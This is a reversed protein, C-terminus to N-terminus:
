LQVGSLFYGLQHIIKSVQYEINEEEKIFITMSWESDTLSEKETIYHLSEIVLNKIYFTLAYDIYHTLEQLLQPQFVGTTYLQQQIIPQILNNLIHTLKVCQNASLKKINAQLQATKYPQNKIINNNLEFKSKFHQHHDNFWGMVIQYVDPEETILQFDSFLCPRLNVHNKIELKVKYTADTFFVPIGQEAVNLLAYTNQKIIGIIVIRKIQSLPFRQISNLKIKVLLSPGDIKLREVNKAKIYIAKRM